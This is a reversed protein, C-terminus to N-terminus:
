LIGTLEADVDKEYAHSVRELSTDLNGSEEGTAVMNVIFQSFSNMTRMAAHLSSGEKVSQCVRM